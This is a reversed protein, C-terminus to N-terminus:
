ISFLEQEKKSLKAGSVPIPASGADSIGSGQALKELALNHRKQEATQKTGNVASAIGASLGGAAGLIAPLLALLPLFGGSKNMHKLQTKSLNLQVGNKAKKIRNIQAVTLPLHMSGHLNKQQLRIVLGVNKDSARKLNKIQNHSLTVGYNIYNSGKTM